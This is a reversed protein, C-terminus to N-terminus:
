RVARPRSCVAVDRLPGLFLLSGQSDRVILRETATVATLDMLGGELSYYRVRLVPASRQRSLAPALVGTFLWAQSGQAFCVWAQAKGHTLIRKLEAPLAQPDGIRYAGEPLLGSRTAFTELLREVQAPQQIKDM